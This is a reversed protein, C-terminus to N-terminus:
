VLLHRWPFRNQFCKPIHADTKNLRSTSCKRFVFPILATYTGGLLHHCQDLQGRLWANSAHMVQTDFIQIVMQETDLNHVVTGDMESDKHLGSSITLQSQLVSTYRAAREFMKEALDLQGEEHMLM